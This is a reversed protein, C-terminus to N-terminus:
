EVDKWEILQDIDYDKKIKKGVLEEIYKPEIGTGPRKIILDKLQIVEGKKIKRNTVISKRAVKITDSESETMKKVGDGFAREVNRICSVMKNLEAIDLSAKHDPGEMNKDLTFHKEIVTAGMSVAMIPIEVGNTHDSYGVPYGFKEALTLMARMNVESYPTPYNSTCHLVVIDNNKKEVIWGIAENVESLDSMGTSLIIKKNKTAIYQLLQKNTIDGSSVKYVDVGLEELLDVSECDFPTAMFDINIKDCYDKIQRFQEFSLELKKLMEFQTDHNKTNEVQYKAKNANRTVLMETQFIQYKICDCGCKKAEDALKLALDLRGNHNVGAEAIIYVAM